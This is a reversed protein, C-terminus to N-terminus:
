LGALPDLSNSNRLSLEVGNHGNNHIFHINSLNELSRKNTFNKRNRFAIKASEEQELTM